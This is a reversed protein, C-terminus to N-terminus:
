LLPKVRDLQLQFSIVQPNRETWVKHAQVVKDHLDELATKQFPFLIDRM